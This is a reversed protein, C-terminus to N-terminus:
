RVAGAPALSTVESGPPADLFTAASVLRLPRERERTTRM